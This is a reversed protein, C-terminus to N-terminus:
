HIERQLIEQFVVALNWVCRLWPSSQWNPNLLNLLSECRCCISPTRDPQDNGLWHPRFCPRMPEPQCDPAENTWPPLSLLRFNATSLHIKEAEAFKQRRPLNEGVQHNKASGTFKRWGPSNEGDRHIKLLPHRIEAMASQYTDCHIDYWKGIYSKFSNRM